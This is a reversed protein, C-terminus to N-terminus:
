QCKAINKLRKVRDENSPHYGNELGSSKIIAGKIQGGLIDDRIKHYKPDASISDLANFVDDIFVCPNAQVFHEQMKKLAYADATYEDNTMSGIKSKIERFLLILFIGACLISLGFGLIGGGITLTIGILVIFILIGYKVITNEIRSSRHDMIHGIEHLIVFRITNDSYKSLCENFFTPNYNLLKLIELYNLGQFNPTKTSVRLKVKKDIIGKDNRLELFLRELKNDNSNTSSETM